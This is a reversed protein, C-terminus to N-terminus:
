LDDHWRKLFSDSDNVEIRVWMPMHDSFQYTRWDLYYDKLAEGALGRGNPSKEADAGYLAFQGPTFIRNFINFVGANREKPEDAERDIFSVLDAKTKFAIQDYHKTQRTNSPKDQLATPVTFGANLLAQMTRHEPSVINFDGLLILATKQRLAEEARGGFYRAIRDIEEVRQALKDGSEAGFYLHVTCIDFKFWGSQFSVVFPTRRFQKGAVVKRSSVQLETKSILMDDPLVIEGAINKFSVKRTDFVFTLREGNGGIKRDTVDTAIYDWEHGLIDMVFEWEDLENVEQVAVMDFRAIVEAIYFHSERLRKGFGRRNRKGFDRLNWTALLLTNDIDKDPLSSQLQRRLTLINALARKRSAAPVKRQLHSYYPM